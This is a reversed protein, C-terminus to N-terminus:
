DLNFIRNLEYAVGAENNTKTVVDALKKLEESANGMAVSLGGAKIMEIDNMGDGFVVTESLDINLYKSLEIIGEAKNTGKPMVDMVHPIAYNNNADRFRMPIMFEDVKTTTADFLNLIEERAKVLKEADYDIVSFKMIPEKTESLTDKLSNIINVESRNEPTISYKGEEVFLDGSLTAVAYLNREKLYEFVKVAVEKQLDRCFINKREKFNAVIGGNSGIVYPIAGVENSYMEISQYPRGSTLVVEIGNEKVKKIAQVNQEPVKKEDTVLTGDIDIFVIKYKNQEM